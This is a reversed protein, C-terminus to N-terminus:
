NGWYEAAISDYDTQNTFERIVKKLADKLELNDPEQEDTLKYTLILESLVYPDLAGSHILKDVLKIKDDNTM